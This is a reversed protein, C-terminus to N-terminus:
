GSNLKYLVLTGFNHIAHMVISPLLSQTRYTLFCSMLGIMMIPPWSAPGTGHFMAFLASNVIAAVIPKGFVRSLAPLVYGRLSIEEFIPAQVCAIFFIAAVSLWGGDSDLQRMAFHETSQSKFILSGLVGAALILPLNAIEGVLGWLILKPTRKRDQLGLAGLGSIKKMAVVFGITFATILAGCALQFGPGGDGKVKFLPSLLLSVLLYGTILIAAREALTDADTLGLPESPHRWGTFGISRMAILSLAIMSAPLLFLALGYLIASRGKEAPTTVESYPVPMGMVEEARAKAIRDPVAQGDLQLLSRTLDEKSGRKASYIQALAQDHRSSSRQLTKLAARSFPIEAIAEAALQASAAEPESKAHEQIWPWDKWRELAASATGTERKQLLLRLQYEIEARGPGKGRDRQYSKTGSLLLLALLFALAIWGLPKRPQVPPIM